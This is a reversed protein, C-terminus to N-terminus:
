AEDLVKRVAERCQVVARRYYWEMFRDAAERWWVREIDTLTWWTVDSGNLGHIALYHSKWMACAIQQDVPVPDDPHKSTDGM